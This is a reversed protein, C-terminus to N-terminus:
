STVLQEQPVSQRKVGYSQSDVALLVLGGLLMLTETAHLHLAAVEGVQSAMMMSVASILGGLM